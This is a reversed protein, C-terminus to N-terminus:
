SIKTIKVQAYVEGLSNLSVAEGLTATGAGADATFRLKFDDDGTGTVTVVAKLTATAADNNAPFCRISKQAVPTATDVNYLLLQYSGAASIPIDAEILYVGAILTFVNAALTVISTSDFDEHTLEVDETAGAAVTQGNVGASKECQLLAIRPNANLATALDTSSLWDFDTNGGNVRPFKSAGGLILKSTPTSNARLLAEIYGILFNNAAGKYLVQNGLGGLDDTLQSTFLQANFVFQEFITQFSTEVYTGTANTIIFYHEKPDVTRPALKTVSLSGTQLIDAPSVFEWASNGANKRILQLASGITPDLKDLNVAGDATIGYSNLYDEFNEWSGLATSWRFWAGTGGDERVYSPKFWLARKRWENTAGSTPPTDESEIILGYLSAPVLQRVMQLILSAFAGAQATPDAGEVFQNTDDFESM